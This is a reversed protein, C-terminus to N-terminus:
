EREWLYEYKGGVNAKISKDEFELIVPISNEFPHPLAFVLNKGHMTVKSTYEKEIFDYSAPTESNKHDLILFESVESYSSDTLTYRAVYMESYNNGLDDKSAFTFIRRKGDFTLTGKQISPLIDNSDFSRWSKLVYTGEIEMSKESANQVTSVDSGSNQFNKTECSAIMLMGLLVSLRKMKIRNFNINLRFVSQIKKAGLM